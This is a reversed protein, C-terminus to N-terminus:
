ASKLKLLDVNERFCSMIKKKENIRFTAPPEGSVSPIGAARPELNHLYTRAPKTQAHTRVEKKQM